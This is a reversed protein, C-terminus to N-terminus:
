WDGDGGDWDGWGDFFGGEDDSEDLEGQDLWSAGDEDVVEGGGAEQADEASADDLDEGGGFIGGMPFPFFFPMAGGGVGHHASHRSFFDSDISIVAALTVARENLSLPRAVEVTGGDVATNEEEVM